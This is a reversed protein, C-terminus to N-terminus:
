LDLHLGSPDQIGGSNIVANIIKEAIPYSLIGFVFVAAGALLNAIEASVKKPFGFTQAAQAGLGSRVTGAVFVLVMAGYAIRIYIDTMARLIGFISRIHATGWADAYANGTPISLIVLFAPILAAYRPLMRGPLSSTKMDAAGAGPILLYM